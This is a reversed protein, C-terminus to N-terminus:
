EHASRSDSCVPRAIVGRNSPISSATALGEVGFLGEGGSCSTPGEWGITLLFRFFLKGVFGSSLIALGSSGILCRSLAILCM